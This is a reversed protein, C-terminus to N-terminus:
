CLVLTAIMIEHLSVRSDVSLNGKSSVCELGLFISLDLNLSSGACAVRFGECDTVTSINVILWQTSMYGAWCLGLEQPDFIQTYRIKGTPLRSPGYLHGLRVM